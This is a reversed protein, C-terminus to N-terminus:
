PKMTEHSYFAMFRDKQGSSRVTQEVCCLNLAREQVISACKVASVSELQRYLARNPGTKKLIPRDVVFPLIDNYDLLM